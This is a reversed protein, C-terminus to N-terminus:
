GCPRAEGKARPPRRTAGYEMAVPCGFLDELSAVSDTAPFCEATGIVVKLGLRRLEERRDRNARALLDLAVSYGILYEPKFEILEEAARRLAESRLEYASFRRYGLMRDVVERRRRHFWGGIGTGFLHSHGWLLFLRSSPSVGYWSRGLWTNYRTRSNESRWGPIQVPEATSGGTKRTIQQPRETSTMAQTNEQVASRCTAPVETTFEQWSGFRVPLNRRQQLERYYPVTALIRRWEANWLALQAELREQESRPASYAARLEDIRQRFFRDRIRSGDLM